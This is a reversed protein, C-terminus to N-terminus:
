LNKYQDWFSSGDLEEVSQEITGRITLHSIHTIGMDKVYQWVKHYNLGIQALGHSDDSLCFKGGLELILKVMDPKPYPSDWGKRIAASNLEFLGGYSNVLQINKVVQDYVEPWQSLEVLETTEFLRILDFHGIVSPKLTDIVLHQLQFYDKYLTRTTGDSTLSKAEEWKDVSFDIPIGHLFHVSGVCMDFKHKFSHALLLHEKDTGEVEFGVLVEMKDKYEQQLRKAHEYYNNFNKNLSEITYSKEIEEPYLYNMSTRPMHETLCFTKFGMSYAKAVISDLDDVAHSVYLGSHSHHSHM